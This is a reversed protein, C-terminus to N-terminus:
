KESTRKQLSTAEAIAAWDYGALAAQRSARINAVAPETAAAALDSIRSVNPQMSESIMANIGSTDSLLKALDVTALHRLYNATILAGLDPIAAMHRAISALDIGAIQLLEELVADGDGKRHGNREALPSLLESLRDLDLYSERAADRLAGGVLSLDQRDEVLDAITRERTTVPLGDRVTVDQEPLSRTRYRVDTRQTQKRTATTFESTMGRLDGIAHLRSASEGSVVAARPQGNLREYALKKPEIALWAARLDEHDSSPAGSDRYVGQALRTLSGSETLRTLNMHSIGRAGAQASTVMGWQSQTVEALARLSERSKM